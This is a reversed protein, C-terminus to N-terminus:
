EVQRTRLPALSAPIIPKGWHTLGDMWQCVLFVVSVFIHAFLNGGHESLLSEVLKKGEVDM